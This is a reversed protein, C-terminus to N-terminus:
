SDSKGFEEFAKEIENLYQDDNEIKTEEIIKESSKKIKKLNSYVVIIGGIFFIPPLIYVLLNLGRAPPQALVRDGYQDVFYQKIQEETWGATLKERILERWQACAQTPCVDLPVNECVPCYLEKAIANVEDDSPSSTQAKVFESQFITLSFLIISFILLTKKFIMPHTYNNM